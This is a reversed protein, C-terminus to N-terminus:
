DNRLNQVDDYMSGYIEITQTSCVSIGQNGAPGSKIVVTYKGDPSDISTYFKRDKYTKGSDSKVLTEPLEWTASNDNGSTKEMQITKVLQGKTNYISATMTKPGSYTGGIPKATNELGKPVKTEWDTTYSTKVKVEFGYGARTIKKADLGKKSAYPIIEWSGRSERDSEKPKKLDTAINQKTDVESSINLKEQYTVNRNEWIPDSYDTYSETSTRTKGDAGTWSVTRTKTPYGTILPYTVTWNGTAAESCNGNSGGGGSSGTTVACGTTAINNSRDKDPKEKDPDVHVSINHMGVEDGRWTFPGVSIVENAPMTKKAEYIVKDNDFFRITVGSQTKGSNNKVKATITSSDGQKISNPSATVSQAILDVDTAEREILWSGDIENNKYADSPSELARDQHNPNNITATAKIYYKGPADSIDIKGLMYNFEQGNKLNKTISTNMSPLTFEATAAGGIKVSATMPMGRDSIYDSSIIDEGDYRFKVWLQGAETLTLKTPVYDMQQDEEPLTVSQIDTRGYGDELIIDVEKGLVKVIDKASATVTDNYISDSTRLLKGDTLSVVKNMEPFDGKKVAVLRINRETYGYASLGIVLQKGQTVKVEPWPSVNFHAVYNDESLKQNRDFQAGMRQIIGATRLLPTRNNLSYLYPHDGSYSGASSIFTDRYYKLQKSNISQGKMIADFLTGLGDESKYTLGFGNEKDFKPDDPQRKVNFVDYNDFSTEEKGSFHFSAAWRSLQWPRDLNQGLAPIYGYLSDGTSDYNLGSAFKKIMPATAAFASTCFLLLLIGTLVITKFHRM